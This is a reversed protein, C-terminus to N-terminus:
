RSHLRYDNDRQKNTKNQDGLLKASHKIRYPKGGNDDYGETIHGKTIHPRIKIEFPGHKCKGPYHRDYCNDKRRTDYQRRSQYVHPSSLRM